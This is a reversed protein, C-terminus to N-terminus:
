SMGLCALDHLGYREPFIYCCDLGGEWYERVNIVRDRAYFNDNLSTLNHVILRSCPTHHPALVKHTSLEVMALSKPPLPSQNLSEVHWSTPSRGDFCDVEDSLGLLDAEAFPDGPEQTLPRHLQFLLNNKSLELPIEDETELLECTNRSLESSQAVEDQHKVNLSDKKDNTINRMPGEVEDCKESLAQQNESSVVM